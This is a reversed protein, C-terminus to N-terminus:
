SKYYEFKQSYTCMQLNYKLIEYLIGILNNRYRITSKIIEPKFVAKHKGGIENFVVNAFYIALSFPADHKM